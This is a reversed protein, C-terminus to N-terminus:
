ILRPWTSKTLGRWTEDPLLRRDSGVVAWALFFALALDAEAMSVFAFGRRSAAGLISKEIEDVEVLLECGMGMAAILCGDESFFFFSKGGIPVM